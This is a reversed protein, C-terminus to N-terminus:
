GNSKGGKRFHWFERAERSLALRLLLYVVYLPILRGQGRGKLDWEKDTYNWVISETGRPWLAYGIGQLIGTHMPDGTGLRGEVEWHYPAGHIVVRCAAGLVKGILGNDLAFYFQALLSPRIKENKKKKGEERDEKEPFREERFSTEEAEEKDPASPVVEKEEPVQVGERHADPEGHSIIEVKVEEEKESAKEKELEDLAENLEDLVDESVEEKEKPSPFVMEKSLLGFLVSGRARVNWKQFTLSYTVPISLILIIVLIVALLTYLVIM